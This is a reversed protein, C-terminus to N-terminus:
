ITQSLFKTFNAKPATKNSLVQTSKKQEDYSKVLNSTSTQKEDNEADDLNFIQTNTSDHGNSTM